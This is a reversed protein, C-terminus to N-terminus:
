LKETHSVISFSANIDRILEMRKDNLEQCDKHMVPEGMRTAAELNWGKALVSALENWLDQIKEALNRYNYSYSLTVKEDKWHTVEKGKDLGAAIKLDLIILRDIIEGPTWDKIV